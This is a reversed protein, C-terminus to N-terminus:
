KQEIILRRQYVKGSAKVTVFYIGTILSEREFVMKNVGNRVPITEKRVTKGLLDTLTVEVMEEVDSNM